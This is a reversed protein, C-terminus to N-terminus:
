MRSKSGPTGRFRIGVWINSTSSETVSVAIGKKMSVPSSMLVPLIVSRNTSSEARMMPRMRPLRAWTFMRTLMNKAPMFPETTASVAVTPESSMGAM